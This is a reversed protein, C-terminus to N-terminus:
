GPTNSMLNFVFYGQMAVAELTEFSINFKSTVTSVVVCRSSTVNSTVKTYELDSNHIEHPGYGGHRDSIVLDFLEHFM